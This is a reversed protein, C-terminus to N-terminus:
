AAVTGHKRSFKFQMIEAADHTNVMTQMGDARRVTVLLHDPGVTRRGTIKGAVRTGDHLVFGVRTNDPLTRLTAPTIHM